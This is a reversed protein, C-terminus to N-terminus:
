WRMVFSMGLRGEASRWPMLNFPAAGGEKRFLRECAVGLLMGAAVEGVTHRQSQIRGYAVFGAALAAPLGYALGYRDQLFAAAHAAVATHRSPFADDGSGDPRRRRVSAKVASAVGLDAALGKVYSVAGARDHHQWCSVLVAVPLLAAAVESANETRGAWAPSCLLM